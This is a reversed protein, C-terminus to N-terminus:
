KKAVKIKGQSAKIMTANGIANVLDALLEDAERQANGNQDKNYALSHYSEKVVKETGLANQKAKLEDIQQQLEDFQAKEEETYEKVKKEANSKLYFLGYESRGFEKDTTSELQRVIIDSKSKYLDTATDAVVKLIKFADKFSYKAM